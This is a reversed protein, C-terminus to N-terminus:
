ELAKRVADEESDSLKTPTFVDLLEPQEMLLKIARERIEKTASNFAETIRDIEEPGKAKQVAKHLLEQAEGLHM